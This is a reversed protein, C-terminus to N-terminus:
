KRKGAFFASLMQACEDRLPGEEIKLTHNLPLGKGIHFHSDIAGARPDRTAYVVRDIRANVLAGACMPCPELTVFLTCGTLRWRDLVRAAERIALIEAHALPDRDIERRNHARAIVSGEHVIVAGIPVEGLQEARRAQAIAERMLQDDV